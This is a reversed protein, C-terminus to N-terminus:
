STTELKKKQRGCSFVIESQRSKLDELQGKLHDSVDVTDEFDRLLVRNGLLGSHERLKLNDRLLGNRTRRTRTLLDRKRAGMAEVKALQERKAQVEMQSWFLKEKVNSLLELSSSIKRQMKFSEENQKETHKRLELKEAQLKEFQLHLPDRAHGEEEHLEAVLRQTRIRLKIHKLRVKILEQQLQTETAFAAEVKARAAQKGLCRSLAAVAVNQKLAALARWENEVKDLKDQSKFRLEEAQQQATELDAALQKKLDTLFNINKEYRQLQESVPTDGDLQVDDGAKKSFFEALKMQLLSLQQLAKDRDEYLEQLLLTSEEYSIDERSEDEDAKDEEKTPSNGHREPAELHLRPPEHDVNSDIELIVSEEHSTPQEKVEDKKVDLDKRTTIYDVGPFENGNNEEPEHTAGEEEVPAGKTSESNEEDHDSAVMEAPVGEEGNGIVRISINDQENSAEASVMRINMVENETEGDM